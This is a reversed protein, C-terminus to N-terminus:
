RRPYFERNGEQLCGRERVPLSERERQTPVRVGEQLCGIERHYVDETEREHIGQRWGTSVRQRGSYSNRDGEPLCGTEKQYESQRGATSM